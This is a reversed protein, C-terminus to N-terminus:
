WSQRPQGFTSRLDAALPVKPNGAFLFGYLEDYLRDFARASVASAPVLKPDGDASLRYLSKDRVTTLPKDPKPMTLQFALNEVDDARPVVFRADFAFVVDDDAHRDVRYDVVIVPATAPTDPTDETIVLVAAPITESLIVRLAAVTTREFRGLGDGAFWAHGPDAAPTADLLTRHFRVRLRPDGSESARLLAARMLAVAKKSSARAEFRALAAAQAESRAAAQEPTLLRLPVNGLGSVAALSHEVINSDVTQPEAAV